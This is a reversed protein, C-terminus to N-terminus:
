NSAALVECGAYGRIAALLMSAGYFILAAFGIFAIAPISATGVLFAFVLMNIGTAVPGTAMLRDSKRSLRSRQWAVMIVPFALLGILLSAWELNLQPRADIVVFRGGLLGFTLLVTGLVIRASTGIPGIQRWPSKTSMRVLTADGLATWWDRPDDGGPHM